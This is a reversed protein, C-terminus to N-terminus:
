QKMWETHMEETTLAEFNLVIAEHGIGFFSKIGSLGSGIPDGRATLNLRWVPEDDVFAPNVSIHLRGVPKDDAVLQSVLSFDASELRSAPAVLAPDAFTSMLHALDDHLGTSPRIHNIYTVECQTLKLSEFGSEVVFSEFKAFYVEFDNLGEKYRIYPDERKRWNFAFWDRQVQLLRQDNKSVMWTRTKDPATEIRIVSEVQPPAGIRELPMNYAPREFVRPFDEKVGEWFLGLHPAAFGGIPAFGVSLVREVVPPKKFTPLSVM